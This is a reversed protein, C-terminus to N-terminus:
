RTSFFRNDEGFDSKLKAVNTLIWATGIPHLQANPVLTQVSPPHMFANPYLNHINDRVTY